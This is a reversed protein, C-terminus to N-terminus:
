NLKTVDVLLTQINSLQRRYPNNFFYCNYGLYLGNPTLPTMLSQINSFSDFMIKFKLEQNGRGVNNIHHNCDFIITYNCQPQDNNVIYNLDLEKNGNVLYIRNIRINLDPHYSFIFDSTTDSDRFLTHEIIYNNSEQYYYNPQLKYYKYTSSVDYEKVLPFFPLFNDVDHNASDNFKFYKYTGLSEELGYQRWNEHEIRRETSVSYFVGMMNSVIRLETNGFQITNRVNIEPDSLQRNFDAYFVPEILQIELCQYIDSIQTQTDLKIIIEIEHDLASGFLIPTGETTPYISKSIDILGDCILSGGVKVQYQCGNLSPLNFKLSLTNKQLFCLKHSSLELQYHNYDYKLISQIPVIYTHVKQGKVAQVLEAETVQFETKPAFVSQDITFLEVNTRIESMKQNEITKELINNKTILRLYTQTKNKKYEFPIATITLCKKLFLLAHEHTDILYNTKHLSFNKVSFTQRFKPIIQNLKILVDPLLKLSELKVHTQYDTLGTLGYIPLLECDIFKIQEELSKM